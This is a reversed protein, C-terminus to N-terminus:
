ADPHLEDLRQIIKVVIHEHLRFREYLKASVIAGYIGLVVLLAALPWIEKAIGRNMIFGFIAVSIVIIYNTM